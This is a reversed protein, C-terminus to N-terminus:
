GTGTRRCRREDSRNARRTQSEARRNARKTRRETARHRRILKARTRGRRTHREDARNDRRLQREDSRNERRLQREDARNERRLQKCGASGGYQSASASPKQSVSAKQGGSSDGPFNGTVALGVSATVLLLGIALVTSLLKSRMLMGKKRNGASRSSAQAMASQKIRDLELPSAEYRDNRLREAIPQLEAPLRQDRQDRM